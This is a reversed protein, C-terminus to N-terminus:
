QKSSNPFTAAFGVAQIQAPSAAKVSFDAFRVGNAGGVFRHGADGFAVGGASVTGTWDVQFSQGDWNADIEFLARKGAADWILRARHTGDGVPALGSVSEQGNASTTVVGGAFDGPALRVYVSPATSPEHSAGPNEQGCGLGFFACGPGGGGKLTITVEAQFSGTAFDARLTRLYSRGGDGPKAFVLAGGGGLEKGSIDPAAAIAVLPLSLILLAACTKMHMLLSANMM